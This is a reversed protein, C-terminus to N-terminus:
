ILQRQWESGWGEAALRMTKVGKQLAKLQKIATRQNMDEQKVIVLPKNTYFSVTAEAESFGRRM